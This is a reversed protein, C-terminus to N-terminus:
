GHISDFKSCRSNRYFNRSVYCNKRFDIIFICIGDKATKKDSRFAKAQGKAIAGSGIGIGVGM